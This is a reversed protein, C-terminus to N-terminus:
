IIVIASRAFPPRSFCKVLRRLGGPVPLLPRLFSRAPRQRLPFHTRGAVKDIKGIIRGEVRSLQSPSGANAEPGHILRLRKLEFVM